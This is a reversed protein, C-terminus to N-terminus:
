KRVFNFLGNKSKLTLKDDELTYTYEVDESKENKFDIFIKNNNITYTFQYEKLSTKLFGIGDEKFEYITVGDTTWSGILKNQINDKPKLTFILCVAVVILLVILLLIVISKVKLKRKTGRINEKM